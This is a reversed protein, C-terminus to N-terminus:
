GEPVRIQIRPLLYDIAYPDGVLLPQPLHSGDMLEEFQLPTGDLYVGIRGTCQCLAMGAVLDWAFVQGVLTAAIAGRAVLALHYATSGFSRIKGRFRFSFWRHANSTVCLTAHSSNLDAFPANSLLTEGEWARGEQVFYQERLKPFHLVGLDPVAETLRGISVGWAPLGALFSSTGDLPDVAWLEPAGMPPVYGPRSSELAHNEEALVATNPFSHQLGTLILSEAEQDAISVLSHDPKLEGKVRRFHGM